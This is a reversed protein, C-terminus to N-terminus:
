ISKLSALFIASISHIYAIFLAVCFCLEDAYSLPAESGLISRRLFNLSPVVCTTCLLHIKCCQQLILLDVTM